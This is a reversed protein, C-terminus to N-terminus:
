DVLRELAVAARSVLLTIGATDRVSPFTELKEKMLLVIASPPSDAPSFVVFEELYNAAFSVVDEQFEDFTREEVDVCWLLFRFIEIRRKLSAANLAKKLFALQTLRLPYSETDFEEAVSDNFLAYFAGELGHHELAKRVEAAAANKAEKSGSSEGIVAQWAAECASNIADRSEHSLM